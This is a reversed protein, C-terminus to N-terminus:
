DEVEVLGFFVPPRGRHNRWRSFKHVIGHEILRCLNDYVTTRPKQLFGVLEPRTCPGQRELTNIIDKELPSLYEYEIEM